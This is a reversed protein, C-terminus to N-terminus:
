LGLLFKMTDVGDAYEWLAPQQAAGFTVSGKWHGSVICQIQEKEKDLLSKLATEDKYFEYYLVAVPSALQDSEKVMLFGNDLFKEQNMLYIARNYDYNNAYKNHNYIEQFFALPPFLQQLDYGAPLYLKSVNRCGLGFYDFIDNGLRQIAEPPEKGNLVAVSNRNKRILHPYKGFYYEFYRASNNSGTAIVADIEALKETFHIYSEFAPEIAVLRKALFPLLLSDESSTKAVLINGSILVTFMDHFGVLPINGAMVTGIRKAEAPNLAAINYASLWHQINEQRLNESWAALAKLV